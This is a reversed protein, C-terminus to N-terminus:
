GESVAPEEPEAQVDKTSQSGGLFSGFMSLDDEPEDGRAARNEAIEDESLEELWAMAEDPDDPFEFLSEDFLDEDEETSVSEETAGLNVSSDSETVATDEVMEEFDLSEEELSSDSVVTDEVFDESEFSELEPELLAEQSEVPQNAVNELWDLADGLEATTTKEVPSITAETSDSVEEIWSLAPRLSPLFKKLAKKSQNKINCPQNQSLLPRKM